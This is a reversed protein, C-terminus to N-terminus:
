GRCFSLRAAWVTLWSHPVPIAVATLHWSPNFAASKLAVSPVYNLCNIMVDIFSYMRLGMVVCVVTARVGFGSLGVTTRIMGGRWDNGVATMSGALAKLFRTPPIDKIIVGSKARWGQPTGIQNAQKFYRTFTVCIM